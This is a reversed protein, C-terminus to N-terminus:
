RKGYGPDDHADIRQTKFVVLIRSSNKEPYKFPEHWLKFDPDGLYYMKKEWTNKKVHSAIGTKELYGTFQPKFTDSRINPLAGGKPQIEVDNIEIETKRVEGNKHSYTASGSYHVLKSANTNVNGKIKIKIHNEGEQKDYDASFFVDSWSINMPVYYIQNCVGEYNSEGGGKDKQVTDGCVSVLLQTTRQLQELPDYPYMAVINREATALIQTGNFQTFNLSYVGAEFFTTTYHPKSSKYPETSKNFDFEFRGTEKAGAMFFTYQKGTELVEDDPDIKISYKIIKKKIEKEIEEKTLGFEKLCENRSKDSKIKNCCDEAYEQDIGKCRKWDQGVEASCFKYVVPDKIHVCLPGWRYKLALDYICKYQSIVDKNQCRVSMIITAAYSRCIEDDGFAAYDKCGEPSNKIIANCIGRQNDETFMGMCDKEEFWDPHKATLTLVCAAQENAPKNKCLQLDSLFLIDDMHDWLKELAAKKGKKAGAKKANSIVNGFSYEEGELAKGAESFFSVVGAGIADDTGEEIAKGKISIKIEKIKEKSKDIIWEVIPDNEIIIDPEVSFTLEDVSSAFSKPIVEVHSGEGEGSFKLVIEGDFMNGKETLTISKDLYLNEAIEEQDYTYTITDNIGDRDKDSIESRGMLEPEPIEQLSDQTEQQSCGALFVFIIIIFLQKTLLIV